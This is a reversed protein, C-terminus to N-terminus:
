WASLGVVKRLIALADTISIQGDVSPQGNQVPGVDGALKQQFTAPEIGVSIRLAKLADGIDVKGDGSVDGNRSSIGAATVTYINLTAPDYSVGTLDLSSTGNSVTVSGVPGFKDKAVLVGGTSTIKPPSASVVSIRPESPDYILTRTTQSSNGNTDSVSVVVVYDGPTTFLPLPLSFDGGPALSVSEAVGNVTATISVGPTATGTLTNTAKATAMDRPPSTIMVAPMGPVYNVSSVITSSRNSTPDTATIAFYNTGPALAVTTAWTDAVMGVTTSNVTIISGAPATGALTYSASATSAGSPSTVTVVPYIPNYTITRPGFSSTNGAADAAAVTISNPGGTLTVAMSFLGNNVPVTQTVGNVTATVSTAGVDSVTGSIPLVPNSTSAGDPPLYTTMVPPISDQTLNIVLTGDSQGALSAVIQLTNAGPALPLQLSWSTGTVSASLGNVSVAAGSTVTGTLTISSTSVFQPLPNLTVSVQAGGGALVNISFTKVTTGNANTAAVVVVNTGITLTATSTWSTGVVSATKGNVTVTAGSTTTGSVSLSTLNTVLPVTNITLAPGSASPNTTENDIGFMALSGSGNSVILRTNLSDFRDFIADAPVILRGSSLGYSGIYRLFGGSAADVVQVNSQFADVVYMRQLTTDDKTYEFSVSQPSTFQLPGSGLTGITKQYVGGTSFFQVRGNLTDVVALQNSLKEYSIGTPQMFQGNQQGTTGFSNAPKGAAAVGTSSPAYGATFVQVCNNISDTVYIAGTKDVAIGNAKGFTGFQATQVGSTKNLVAVSTGQSVLLDGNQAIAVGLPKQLTPMNKQLVGASSFKLVGGGRPDTVYINGLPDSALRVPTSVGETISSLSSVVPAIAGHAAGNVIALWLFSVSMRGITRIIASCQTM